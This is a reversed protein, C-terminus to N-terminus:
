NVSRVSTRRPRTPVFASSAPTSKVGQDPTATKQPESKQNRRFVYAITALTGAIVFAFAVFAIAEPWEMKSMPQRHLEALLIGCAASM